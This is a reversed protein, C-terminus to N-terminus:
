KLVNRYKIAEKKTRMPCLWYIINKHEHKVERTFVSLKEICLCAPCVFYMYKM